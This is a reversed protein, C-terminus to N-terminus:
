QATYKYASNLVMNLIIKADELDITKSGNMDANELSLNWDPQVKQGGTSVYYQVVAADNATLGEIGDVDGTPDETPEVAKTGAFSINDFYLSGKATRMFKLQKLTSNRGETTPVSQSIVPEASINEPDYQGDTGHLAASFNVTSGGNTGEITIHYWKNPELSGLETGVAEKAGLDAPSSTAYLKGEVDMIHMFANDNGMALAKGTATDYDHVDNDLYFRFSRGEKDTNTTLFDYEIKYDGEAYEEPIPIQVAKDGLKLMNTSNGETKENTEYCTSIDGDSSIIFSGGVNDKMLFSRDYFFGNETDHDVYELKPGSSEEAPDVVADGTIISLGSISTESFYPKVSIADASDVAYGVYVTEPLNEFTMHWPQRVGNTWSEGDTSVFLWIEDGYRVIRMYPADEVNEGSSKNQAYGGSITEFYTYMSEKGKTDRYLIRDNIGYKLMSYTIMAMRSDADLTQRFMLGNNQQNEFRPISDTKVRIDFNGSVEKYLYANDDNKIKNTSPFTSTSTSGNTLTGSGYIKYTGAASDYSAGGLNKFKGGGNNLETFSMDGLDESTDKVYVISMTSQTKEGKNNYARCSLYHTGAPLSISDDISSQGEYKQILENADYLEMGTIETGESATAEARYSIKDNETVVTWNGNNVAKGDVTSNVSAIAPSMVTISPNTPAQQEETWENVYAEMLTYGKYPGEKTIIDAEGFESLGKEDIWEQPVAFVRTTTPEYKFDIKGGAENANNIERGTHHKVDDIIRADVADRKPITAGVNALISDYAEEATDYKSLKYEGMDYAEPLATYKDSGDVGKSNDATVGTSGYVFNGNFFFSGKVKDPFDNTIQFIRSRLSDKTSPGYSYYNNTYNVINPKTRSPDGTKNGNSYPEGGYASNTQGWNYILNATVETGNMERDLRPSRSDHHALLNHHYTANDGGMIGGYGHAGKFHSSMRLSEAALTNQVTLNSGHPKGEGEKVSDWSGAYLTLLEDVSWSVSCHDFIVNTSYRGGLGDLEVNQDDTPRVRMYRFIINDAGDTTQVQRGTVTIGEGPATQGLVTINSGLNLDSELNITGDVDFVVINGSASNDVGDRLSGPGSDNLNTVHYIQIKDNARAGQTYKGGGEAGPFALLKNEEAFAIGPALTATMVAATLIAAARKLMKM